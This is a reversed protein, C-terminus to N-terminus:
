IFSELGLDCFVKLAWLYFWSQYFLSFDITHLITFEVNFCFIMCTNQGTPQATSYVSQKEASPYSEGLSHGPYSVLCDSPSIGTISSSQPLYIVGENGDSESGNQGQTTAGSWTRNIAWISGFQTSISFQIAQFLVTKVNPRHIQAPSFQKFHFQKLISFQITQFLVILIYLISKANFLRCHNIHWLVM